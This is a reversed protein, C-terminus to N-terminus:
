FVSLTNGAFVFSGVSMCVCVFACMCVCVYVCLCYVSQIGQLSM